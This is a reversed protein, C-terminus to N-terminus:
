GRPRATAARADPLCGAGDAGPMPTTGGAVPMPSRSVPRPDTPAPCPPPAAPSSGPRPARAPSTRGALRDPEPAAPTNAAVNEGGDSGPATIKLSALQRAEEAHGAKGEHGAMAMFMRGHAVALRVSMQKKGETMEIEAGPHGDVTTQEKKVINFKPEASAASSATRPRTWARRGKLFDKPDLIGRGRPDGDIM